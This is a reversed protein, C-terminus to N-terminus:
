RYQNRVYDRGPPWFPELLDYMFWDMVRDIEPEMQAESYTWLAIVGGPHLVRRAEAYFLKHNLWHAATAVTLLDVSQNELGSQEAVAVRYEVGPSPAAHSIQNESADTAIVRKFHKA